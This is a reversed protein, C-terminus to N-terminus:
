YELKLEISTAFAPKDTLQGKEIFRSNDTCETSLTSYFM